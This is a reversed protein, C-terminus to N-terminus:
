KKMSDKFEEVMDVPTPDQNYALALYYSTWDALLSTAFVKELVTSGKMFIIEVNVGKQELLGKFINMRKKNREHDSEDQMVIIFYKGVLNTFGVMENHNLEPFYNFFSQTKANENFKIKFIRAISDRYFETTYILPINDKVKTALEQGAIEQESNISELFEGLSTLDNEINDIVKIKSLITLISTFIYGSACRPQFTPGDDPYQIYPLNNQQCIQVIDKGKAIGVAKLKRSIAENLCSIVEETSGSFSSAIILSNENAEVPLNYDRCIFIPFTIKKSKLYSIVMDVPLASGGMGCVIVNNFEGSIEIDKAFALAKSFQKPYDRVVQAFNSKDINNTM